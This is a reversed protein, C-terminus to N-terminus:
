DRGDMSIVRGCELSNYEVRRVKRIKGLRRLGQAIEASQKPSSEQAILEELDDEMANMVGISSSLRYCDATLVSLDGPEEISHVFRPHILKRESLYDIYGPNLSALRMTAPDALARDVAPDHEFPNDFPRPESPDGAPAFADLDLESAAQDTGDSATSSDGTGTTSGEDCDTTKCDARQASALAPALAQAGAFVGTMAVLAVVLKGRVISRLDSIEAM